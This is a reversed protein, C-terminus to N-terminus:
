LRDQGVVHGVVVAMPGVAGEGEHRWGASGVRRDKRRYSEVPDPAGIAEAAENVLVLPDSGSGSSVSASAWRDAPHHKPARLLQEVHDAWLLQRRLLGIAAVPVSVEEDEVPAFTQQEGVGVGQERDELGVDPRGVQARRVVEDGPQDLPLEENLPKGNAGEAIKSGLLKRDGLSRIAAHEAAHVVHGVEAFVRDSTGSAQGARVNCREVAVQAPVDVAGPVVLPWDVEDQLPDGSLRPRPCRVSTPDSYQCGM